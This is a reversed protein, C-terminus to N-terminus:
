QVGGSSRGSLAADVRALAQMAPRTADIERQLRENRQVIYAAPEPASLVAACEALEAMWGAMTAAIEDIGSELLWGVPSQGPRRRREALCLVFTRAQRGADENFDLLDEEMLHWRGLLDFFAMWDALQDQRGLLWAVAQLPISAALVKRASVTVFDDLTPAGLAADQATADLCASWTAAFRDHFPHRDPFLSFYPSQFREHLVGLIPVFELEQGVHGDMIGDLIRIFYYGSISSAALTGQLERDISGRAAREFWWPLLIFPFARPHTFYAAPDRDGALRRMWARARVAMFPSLAELDAELRGVAESVMQGVPGEVMGRGYHASTERRRAGLGVLTPDRAAQLAFALNAPGDSAPDDAFRMAGTFLVTARGLPEAGLTLGSLWATEEM